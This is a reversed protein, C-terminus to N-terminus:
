RVRGLGTCTLMSSSPRCYLGSVETSTPISIEKPKKALTFCKDTGLVPEVVLPGNSTKYLSVDEDRLMREREVTAMAARDSEGEDWPASM